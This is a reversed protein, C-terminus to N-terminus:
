NARSILPACRQLMLYCCNFGISLQQIFLAFLVVRFFWWDFAFMQSSSRSRFHLCSLDLLDMDVAPIRFKDRQSFTFDIMQWAFYKACKHSTNVPDYMNLALTMMFWHHLLFYVYRTQNTIQYILKPVTFLAFFLFFFCEVCFLSYQRNVMITSGCTRNLSNISNRKRAVLKFHFVHVSMETMWVISSLSNESFLALILLLIERATTWWWCCVENGNVMSYCRADNHFIRIALWLLVFGLEIGHILSLM